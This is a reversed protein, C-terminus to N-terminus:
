VASTLALPADYIVVVRITGVTLATNGDSTGGTACGTVCIQEAAALTTPTPCCRSKSNKTLADAVTDGFGATGYKDGDGATGVGWTATTGGGTLSSMVCAGVYRVVAGVPITASLNTEVAAPSLTEDIIMTKMGETSLPGIQDIQVAVAAGALAHTMAGTVDISGKSGATGGASAGGAGVALSISGGAGGNSNGATAAGGAGAAIAISAGAGGVAGSTDSTAGGVGGSIALAGGAGGASAGTANANAGGAGSALTTAGGAGPVGTGTTAGGIGAALSLAGGAGGAITSDGSSGDGCKLSLPGGVRAATATAGADKTEGYVATGATNTAAAFGSIASTDFKLALPTVSAATIAGTVNLTGDIQADGDVDLDGDTHIDDHTNM